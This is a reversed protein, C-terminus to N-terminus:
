LEAIKEWVRKSTEPAVGQKEHIVMWVASASVNAARAVDRMTPNLKRM